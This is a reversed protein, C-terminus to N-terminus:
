RGCCLRIDTTLCSSHGGTLTRWIVRGPSPHARRGRLALAARDAAERLRRRKEEALAGPSAGGTGRTFRRESAFGLDEVLAKRGAEPDRAAHQRKPWKAYEDIGVAGAWSDEYDTYVSVEDRAPAGSANDRGCGGLVMGGLLRLIGGAAALRMPRHASLMTRTLRVSTLPRNMGFLSPTPLIM